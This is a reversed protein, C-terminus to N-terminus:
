KKKKKKKGTKKKDDKKEEVVERDLPHINKIDIAFVTNIEFEGTEAEPVKILFLDFNKNFERLWNRQSNDDGTLVLLKKGADSTVFWTHYVKEKGATKDEKYLEKVFTIFYDKSFSKFPMLFSVMFIMM